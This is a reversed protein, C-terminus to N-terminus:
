NDFYDLIREALRRAMIRHAKKNPHLGDTFYQSPLGLAIEDDVPILDTGEWVPLGRSGCIDRIEARLDALTYGALNPANGEARQIPTVCVVIQHIAGYTPASTVEDIFGAYSDIFETLPRSTAYDNTGQMIIAARWAFNDAIVATAYQARLDAAVSFGRGNLHVLFGADFLRKVFTHRARSRPGMNGGIGISDSLISIAPIEEEFITAIRTRTSSKALASAPLLVGILCLVVSYRQCM